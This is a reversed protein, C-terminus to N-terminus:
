YAGLLQFAGWYYPHTWEPQGKITAAATALASARDHGSALGEYFAEMLARTSRDDVPWLSVVLSRVGAALFAHALGMLEDGALPESVGSECASLVLLDLDLRSALIERARLDGDFLAIRSDLPSVDSFSAHAAIHAVRSSRLRRGVVAVQADPGILPRNDGLIKAVQLAEAAAYTLDGNPDGVVLAPTGASPTSRLRPLLSLSPISAVPLPGGDSLSWGARDALVGWPVTHSQKHPAIVVRRTDDLHESLARFPTILSELWREGRDEGRGTALERHLRRAIDQWREAGIPTSVVAPEDSDAGILMFITETPTSMVSLLMTKEPSERCFQALEPVSATAGRRLAAFAAGAPSAQTIREWLTSLEALNRERQRARAAAAGWTGPAPPWIEQEVLELSEMEQLEGVLAAERQASQPDLDPPAAITTWGIRQALLRSKAGEAIEIARDYSPQGDVSHRILIAALRTSLLTLTDQVGIRHAVPARGLYRDIWTWARELIEVTEELDKRTGTAEALAALSEGLNLLYDLTAARETPTTAVAHRHHDIAERLANLDNDRRYARLLANGLNAHVRPLELPAAHDGLLMRDLRIAEDLDADDEALDYRLALLAALNQRMQFVRLAATPTELAERLVDIAQGILTLDPADDAFAFVLASFNIALTALKPSDEPILKRSRDLVEFAERRVESGRTAVFYEYLGSALNLLHTPMSAADESTAEIAQRYSDLGEELDAPSHCVQYRDTLMVGLSSRLPGIEDSPLGPLTLARRLLAIALDLSCLDSPDSRFREYAAKAQAKLENPSPGDM